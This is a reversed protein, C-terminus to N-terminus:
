ASTGHYVVDITAATGGNEASFNFKIYKLPIEQYALVYTGNATITALNTTAGVSLGTVALGSAITLFPLTFYNTGDFSGQAGVVVDTNISAVKVQFAHTKFGKVDEAATVGPATLQTFTTTKTFRSEFPKEYSSM